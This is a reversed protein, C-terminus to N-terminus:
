LQVAKDFLRCYIRFLYRFTRDSMLKLFLHKYRIFFLIGPIPKDSSNQIYQKIDLFTFRTKESNNSIINEFRNVAWKTDFREIISKRGSHILTARLSSNSYLLHLTQLIGNYRNCVVGGIKNGVIEGQSNDAYPTQLTIVPLGCLISEALVIGFSEGIRTMHLFVDASGYCLRLNEDENIQEIIVIKCKLSLNLQATKRIISNPAGVLLLSTNPHTKHFDVFIDIIKTNWKADFPQGIRLLVFDNDKINNKKRFDIREKNSVPFFRKTNISNPLIATKTQTQGFQQYNWQCWHSLQLSCDILQTFATPVGFVNQEYIQSLPYLEKISKVIEFSIGHSHIHIIDPIWKDEKLLILNEFSLIVTIGSAEINARRIGDTKTSFVVVDHGKEKFGISYNEATRQTGGIGLGFVVTLIKM